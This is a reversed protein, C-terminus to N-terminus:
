SRTRASNLRGSKGGIRSCALAESAVTIWMAISPSPTATMGAAITSVSSALPRRCSNFVLRSIGGRVKLALQSAEGSITAISRTASSAALVASIDAWEWADTSAAGGALWAFSAPYWPSFTHASGAGIQLDIGGAEPGGNVLGRLEACRRLAAHPPQGQALFVLLHAVPKVPRALIGAELDM